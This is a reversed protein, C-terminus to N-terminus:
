NFPTNSKSEENCRKPIRGSKSVDSGKSQEKMEALDPKFFGSRLATLRKSFSSTAVYTAKALATAAIITATDKAIQVGFRRM